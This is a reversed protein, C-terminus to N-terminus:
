LCYINSCDQLYLFHIKEYFCEGSSSGSAEGAVSSRSIWNAIRNDVKSRSKMSPSRTVEAKREESLSVENTKPMSPLSKQTVLKNRRKEGHEELVEGEPSLDLPLRKYPIQEEEDSFAENYFNEEPSNNLNIETWEEGNEPHNEKKPSSIKVKKELPSIVNKVGEKLRPCSGSSENQMKFIHKSDTAAISRPRERKIYRRPETSSLSM